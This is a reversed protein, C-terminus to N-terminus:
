AAAGIGPVGETLAATEGYNGDGITGVPADNLMLQVDQDEFRLYVIPLDCIVLNGYNLSNDCMNPEGGIGGVGGVGGVGGAGGSTVTGAGSGGTNPVGGSSNTSSNGGKGITFDALGLIDACATSSLAALVLWSWGPAIAAVSCTRQTAERM